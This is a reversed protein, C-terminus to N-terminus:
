LSNTKAYTSGKPSTGMRQTLFGIIAGTIFGPIMIQAYYHSGDPEPQMAVLYALLLGIGAGVGIGVANSNVKRAVLGCLVGVMMGKVGSAMMIFALQPRVKPEFWATAGDLAGLIAGVVIGVLPKNM